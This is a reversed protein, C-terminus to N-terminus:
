NIQACIIWGCVQKNQPSMLWSITRTWLLRNTKHMCIGTTEVVVFFSSQFQATFTSNNWDVPLYKESKFSKSLVAPKQGTLTQEDTTKAVCRHRRLWTTDKFKPHCKIHQHWQESEILLVTHTRRFRPRLQTNDWTRIIAVIGAKSVPSIEPWLPNQRTETQDQIVKM